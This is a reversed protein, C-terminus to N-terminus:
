NYDRVRYITFYPDFRIVWGPYTKQIGHKAHYYALAADFFDETVGFYAAMEPRTRNGRRWACILRDLPVLRQYAWRRGALENRRQTADLEDVAPGFSKYHHGAEEALVCLRRRGTLRRNVLVLPARDPASVYLGAPDGPGLIQDDVIAGDSILGDEIREMETM